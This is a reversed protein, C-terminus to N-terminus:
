SSSWSVSYLVDGGFNFSYGMTSCGSGQTKFTDCICDTGPFIVYDWDEDPEGSRADFPYLKYCGFMADLKAIVEDRTM